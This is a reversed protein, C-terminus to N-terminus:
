FSDRSHRAVCLLIYRSSPVSVREPKIELKEILANIGDSM